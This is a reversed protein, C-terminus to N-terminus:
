PRKPSGLVDCEGRGRVPDTDPGGRDAFELAADATGALEGLGVAVPEAPGRNEAYEAALRHKLDGYEAARAPYARLYDRFFIGDDLRASDAPILHLHHTRRAPGPKCLRHM